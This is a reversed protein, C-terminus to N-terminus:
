NNFFVLEELNDYNFSFAVIYAQNHFAGKSNKSHILLM